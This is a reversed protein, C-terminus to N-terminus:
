SHAVEATKKAYDLIANVSQKRPSLIATDLMQMSNRLAEFKEKLEWNSQIAIKIEQAQKESTEQYLYQILEETTYNTM